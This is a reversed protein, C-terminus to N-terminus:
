AHASVSTSAAPAEPAAAPAPAPAPAALARGTLDLVAFCHLCAARAVDAFVPTAEECQPCTLQVVARTGATGAQMTRGLALCVPCYYAGPAAPQSCALCPFATVVDEIGTM